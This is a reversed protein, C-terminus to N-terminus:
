TCQRLFGTHTGEVTIKMETLLVWSESVFLFVVKVVDRYLIEVVKTDEGERQLMLLSVGWVRRVWKVNWQLALWEDDTHDMQRGLYKFNAVGEVLADGERGYLSSEMHGCMEEMEVDRRRIHMETAKDFIAISRYKMLIAALIHM